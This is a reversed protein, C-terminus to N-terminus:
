VMRGRASSGAVAEKRRSKRILNARIKKKWYKCAYEFPANKWEKTNYSYHCRCRNCVGAAHGDILGYKGVFKKAHTITHFWLTYCGQGRGPAALYVNDGIVNTDRFIGNGYEIIAVKIRREGRIQFRSARRFM